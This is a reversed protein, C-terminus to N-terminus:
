TQCNSAVQGPNMAAVNHQHAGIFISGLKGDLNGISLIRQM